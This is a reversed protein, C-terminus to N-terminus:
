GARLFARLPVGEATRFAGFPGCIDFLSIRTIVFNLFRVVGVGVDFHRLFFLSLFIFPPSPTVIMQLLLVALFRLVISVM